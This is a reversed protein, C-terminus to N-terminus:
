FVTNAYYKQGQKGRFIYLKVKSVYPPSLLSLQASRQSVHVNWERSQTNQEWNFKLVIEINRLFLIRSFSTVCIAVM